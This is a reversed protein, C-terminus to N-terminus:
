SAPKSKNQSKSKDAAAGTRANKGPQNALSRDLLPALNRLSLLHAHLATIQGGKFWALVKEDPLERLKAEDAIWVGDIVAQQDEAKRIQLTKASLLGAEEFQKLLQSTLRAQQQFDMLMPMLRKVFETPEGQDDFLAEGEKGVNPAAMDLALSLQDNPGESFIFPYRRVSAPVFRAAWQGKADVFANQGAQTGTLALAMWQGGDGKAFVIPYELAAEAFETALLPVSQNRAAFQANGPKIRVGKHQLRDLVAPKTYFFATAQNTMTPANALTIQTATSQAAAQSGLGLSLLVLLPFVLLTAAIPRIVPTVGGARLTARDPSPHTSPQQSGRFTPPLMCPLTATINKFRVFNAILSKENNVFILCFDVEFKDFVLFCL